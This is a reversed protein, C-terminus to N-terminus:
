RVLLILVWLLILATVLLEKFCDVRHPLFQLPRDSEKTFYYGTFEAGWHYTVGTCRQEWAVKTDWDKFLLMPATLFILFLCWKRMYGMKESSQLKIPGPTHFPCAQVVNMLNLQWNARNPRSDPLYFCFSIRVDQTPM